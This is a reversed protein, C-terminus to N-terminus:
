ITLKRYIEAVKLPLKRVDDLVSYAAPGYMHKLYDPGNRDLTV